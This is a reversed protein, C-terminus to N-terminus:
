DQLSAQLNSLDHQYDVERGALRNLMDQFIAEQRPYRNDSEQDLLWALVGQVLVDKWNYLVLDYLTGATDLRLLNAYYRMQIAYVKDPVPYLEYDARNGTGLMFWFEPREKNWPKLLTDRDKIHKKELDYQSDPILYGDSAAPTTVWTEAMTAIKTSTDYNDIQNAQDVGTGSTIVLLKGEADAQSIGEAAALTATGSAAAQLTGTTSGELISVQLDAEYDTPVDYKSVGAVTMDYVTTTLLKWHKHKLWIRQKVYSLGYTIARTLDASAPSDEGLRNYAETVINTESPQTPAAM